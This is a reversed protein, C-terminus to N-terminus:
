IIRCLRRENDNTTACILEKACAASPIHMVSSRWPSHNLMHQQQKSKNKGRLNATSKCWLVQNETIFSSEAAASEAAAQNNESISLSRSHM